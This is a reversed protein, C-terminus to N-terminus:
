VYDIIVYPQDPDGPACCRILRNETIFVQQRSNYGFQMIPDIHNKKKKMSVAEPTRCLQHIDYIQFSSSRMASGYMIGLDMNFSPKYLRSGLKINALCSSSLRSSDDIIGSGRRVDYMQIANMSQLIILNGRIVATDHQCSRISTVICERTSLRRDMLMVSGHRDGIMVTSSIDDDVSIFPRRQPIGVYPLEIIRNLTGGSVYDYECIQTSEGYRLVLHCPSPGNGDVVVFPSLLPDSSFRLLEEGTSTNRLSVSNDILESVIIHSSSHLPITLRALENDILADLRRVNYCHDTSITDNTHRETTPNLPSSSNILDSAWISNTESELGILRTGSKLMCWEDMDSSEDAYRGVPIEFKDQQCINRDCYALWRDRSSGRTVVYQCWGGRHSEKAEDPVPNSTKNLAHYRMIPARISRISLLLQDIVSSAVTEDNQSKLQGGRLHVRSRSWRIPLTHYISRWLREINTRTNIGVHHWMVSNGIAARRISQGSLLHYWEHCTIMTSLLTNADCWYWIEILITLPLSQRTAYNFSSSPAVKHVLTGNDQRQTALRARKAVLSGHYSHM